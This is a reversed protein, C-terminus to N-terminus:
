IIVVPIVNQPNTNPTDLYSQKILKKSILVMISGKWYEQFEAAYFSLITKYDFFNAKSFILNANALKPPRAAM